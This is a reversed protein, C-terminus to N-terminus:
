RQRDKGRKKSGKAGKASISAIDTAKATSPAVGIGFGSGDTDGVLLGDDGINIGKAQAERIQEIDTKDILTYRERLRGEIDAEM